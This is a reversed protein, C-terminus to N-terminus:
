KLAALLTGEAMSIFLSEDESSSAGGSEVLGTVCGLGM